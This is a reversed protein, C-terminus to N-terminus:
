SFGCNVKFLETIPEEDRDPFKSEIAQQLAEEAKQWCDAILKSVNPIKMATM